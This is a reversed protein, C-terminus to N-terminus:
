DDDAPLTAVSAQFAAVRAKAERLTAQMQELTHLAQRARQEANVAQSEVVPDSCAVPGSPVCRPLERYAQLRAFADDFTHRLVTFVGIPPLVVPKPPAVEVPAPPPPPPPPPPPAACSVALFLLPLLRFHPPLLRFHLPFIRM